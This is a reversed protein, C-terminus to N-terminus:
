WLYLLLYVWTMDGIGYAFTTVTMSFFSLLGVISTLIITLRLLKLKNTQERMANGGVRLYVFTKDYKRHKNSYNITNRIDYKKYQWIRRVKAMDCNGFKDGWVWKTNGFYLSEAHFIRKHKKSLLIKLFM